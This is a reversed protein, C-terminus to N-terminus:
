QDSAERARAPIARLHIADRTLRAFNALLTHGQDSLISEPHFQVGFIPHERHRLAQVEPGAHASRNSTLEAHRDHSEALIQLEDPLSDASVTLSHYRGVTFEAPCGQFLEGGAHRVVSARGHWPYACREVCGGYALAIAQHGLCVGLLPWRQPACRALEISLHAQSPHGPGPGTIVGAPNLAVVKQLSLEDARRVVVELGLEALYQYLNYTFSDRNDVLLLMGRLM